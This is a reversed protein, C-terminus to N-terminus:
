QSCGGVHLPSTAQTVKGDRTQVACVAYEADCPIHSFEFQWTFAAAEGDLQRTDSTYPVISAELWRNEASRPVRCTVRVTGGAMLVMPMLHITVAAAIALYGATIGM